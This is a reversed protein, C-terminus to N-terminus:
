ARGPDRAFGGLSKSEDDFELGGFGDAGYGLSGEGKM